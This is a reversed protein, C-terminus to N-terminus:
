DDDVVRVPLGLMRRPKRVELGAKKMNAHLADVREDYVRLVDYIRKDSMRTQSDYPVELGAPVKWMIGGADDRARLSRGVAAMPKFKLVPYPAMKKEAAGFQVAHGKHQQLRFTGLQRLHVDFGACTAEYIFECLVDIADAAVEYDIDCIRAIQCACAARDLKFRKEAM